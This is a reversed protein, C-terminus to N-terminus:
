TLTINKDLIQMDSYSESRHILSLFAQLFLVINHSRKGNENM